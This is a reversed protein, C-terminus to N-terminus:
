IFKGDRAMTASAADCTLRVPPGASRVRRKRPHWGRALGTCGRALGDEPEAIGGAEEASGGDRTQWRQTLVVTSLTSLLGHLQAARFYLTHAATADGANARWRGAGVTSLAKCDSPAALVRRSFHICQQQEGWSGGELRVLHNRNGVHLLQWAASAAEWAGPIGLQEHGSSFMVVYANAVEWSNEPESPGLFNLVLDVTGCSPSSFSPAQYNSYRLTHPCSIKTKVGLQLGGLFLIPLKQSM